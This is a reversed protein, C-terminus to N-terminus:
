SSRARPSIATMPFRRCRAEGQAARSAAQTGSRRRAAPRELSKSRKEIEAELKKNEADYRGRADESAPSNSFPIAERALPPAADVGFRSLETSCGKAHPLRATTRARRTSQRWDGRLVVGEALGAIRTSRNRKRRSRAIRTLLQRLPLAAKYWAQDALGTEPKALPDYIHSFALGDRVNWGRKWEIPRVEYTAAVFQRLKADDQTGATGPAATGGGACCGKFGSALEFVEGGGGGFTDPFVVIGNDLDLTM